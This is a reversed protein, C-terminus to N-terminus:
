ETGGGGVFAQPVHFLQSQDDRALPWDGLWGYHAPFAGGDGFAAEAAGDSVRSESAGADAARCTAYAQVPALDAARITAAVAAHDPHPYSFCGDAEGPFYYAGLVRDPARDLLGFEAPDTIVQEAAWTAEQETLDGDGLDFAVLAGRGEADRWVLADADVTVEGDDDRGVAVDDPDLGTVREPEAPLAGPLTADQEGMQEFFGTWSALRADACTSTWRGGGTESDCYSSQEGRTMLVFVTYSDERGEVQSWVQFEDDPHPLLVYTVEAVPDAGDDPAAGSCAALTLGLCAVAVWRVGNVPGPYAAWSM